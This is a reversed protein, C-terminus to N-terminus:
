PFIQQVVCSEVQLYTPWWQISFLVHDNYDPLSCIWLIHSTVDANSFYLFRIIIARKSDTFLYWSQLRTRTENWSDLASIHIVSASLDMWFVIIDLYTLIATIFLFSTLVLICYSIYTIIWGLKTAGRRILTFSARRFTKKAIKWM